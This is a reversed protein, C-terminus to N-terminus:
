RHSCTSAANNGSAHGRACIDVNRDEDEGPDLVQHRRALVALGDGVQQGVRLQHEDGVRSVQDHQLVGLDDYVAEGVEQHAGSGHRCPSGHAAISAGAAACLLM